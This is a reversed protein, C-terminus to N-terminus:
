GAAAIARRGGPAIPVIQASQSPRHTGYAENRRYAVLANVFILAKGAELFEGVIVGKERVAYGLFTRVLEIGDSKQSVIMPKPRSAFIGLVLKLVTPIRFAM